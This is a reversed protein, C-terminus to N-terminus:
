RKVVGGGGGFNGGPGLNGGGGGLNGGGGGLNGGGVVGRNRYAATVADVLRGSDNAQDTVWAFVVAIGSGSICRVTLSEEGRWGFITQRDQSINARFGVSEVARQGISLCEEQNNSPLQAWATSVSSALAPAATLALAAALAPLPIRSVSVEQRTKPQQPM